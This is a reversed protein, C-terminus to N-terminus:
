FEDSNNETTIQLGLCITPLIHASTRNMSVADVVLHKPERVLM